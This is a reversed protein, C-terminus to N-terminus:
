ALKPVEGAGDIVSKNARRAARKATQLCVNAERAADAISMGGLLLELVTRKNKRPVQVMWQLQKMEAVVPIRWSMLEAVREASYGYCHLYLMVRYESTDEM